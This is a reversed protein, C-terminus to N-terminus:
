LKRKFRYTTFIKKYQEFTTSVGTSIITNEYGQDPKDNDESSIYYSISNGLFNYNPDSYRLIGGLSEADVELSFDVKKGEGLWNNESIGIAFSGGDTGIGAGASIEGTPKEVVEINIIKLNNASGDVIKYNVENFLNRSKIESISKELNLKTFPDGEDLILEGRIVSESTVNNGTINIREVLIKDGEFINFKISISEDDIIEEVNHEVFQLNNKEILIDIEDLLEKVKFPSYYEGIFEKYKKNLPCFYNKIM